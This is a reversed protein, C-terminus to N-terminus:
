RPPGRPRLAFSPQACYPQPHRSFATGLLIFTATLVLVMASPGALVCIPCDPLPKVVAGWHDGELHGPCAEVAHHHLLHLGQGLLAAVLILPLARRALENM